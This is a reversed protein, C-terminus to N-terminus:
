DHIGEREVFVMKGERRLGLGPFLSRAGQTNQDHRSWGSASRPPNCTWCPYRRPGIFTRYARPLNEIPVRALWRVWQFGACEPCLPAQGHERLLDSAIAVSDPELTIALERVRRRLEDPELPRAITSKM